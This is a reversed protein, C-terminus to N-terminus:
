CLTGNFHPFPSDGHWPKLMWLSPFVIGAKSATSFPEFRAPLRTKWDALDSHLTQWALIRDNQSSCEALDPFSFNIARALLYSITNAKMDDAPNEDTLNAFINGMRVPRRYELAVTIEERLYNWAGAQLLGHSTFDISESVAFSYAGLLHHQERSANGPTHDTLVCSPLLIARNRM